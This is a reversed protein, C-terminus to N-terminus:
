RPRSPAGVPRPASSTWRRASLKRKRTVDKNETVKSEKCYKGFVPQYGATLAEGQKRFEGPARGYLRSDACYYIGTNRNTWVLVTPNMAPPEVTALAGHFHNALGPIFLLASVAMGLVLIGILLWPDKKIATSTSPAESLLPDYSSTPLAM